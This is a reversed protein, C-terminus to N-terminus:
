RRASPPPRHPSPYPSNAMADITLLSFPCGSGHHQNYHDVSDFFDHFGGYVIPLVLQEKIEPHMSYVAAITVSLCERVWYVFYDEESQIQDSNLVNIFQTPCFFCHHEPGLQKMRALNVKGEIQLLEAPKMSWISDKRVIVDAMVSLLEKNNKVNFMLKWFLNGLGKPLHVGESFVYHVRWQNILELLVARTCQQSNEFVEKSAPDGLHGHINAIHALLHGAGPAFYGSTSCGAVKAPMQALMRNAPTDLLPVHSLTKGTRKTQM